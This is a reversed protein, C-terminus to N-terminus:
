GAVDEAPGVVTATRRRVLGAVAGVVGALALALLPLHSVSAVADHLTAEGRALPWAAVAEVLQTVALALAAVVAFWRVPTAPRPWWRVAAVALVAGSVGILAHLVAHGFWESDDVGLLGGIGMAVPISLVFALATWRPSELVKM